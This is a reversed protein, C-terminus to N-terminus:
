REFVGKLVGKYAQIVKFMEEKLEKKALFVGYMAWFTVEEMMLSSVPLSSSVRSLLGNAHRDRFGRDPHADIGKQGVSAQPKITSFSHYQQKMSLISQDFAERLSQDYPAM